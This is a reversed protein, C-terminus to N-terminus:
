SWKYGIGWVTHIMGDTPIGSKRIKDRLNRIHSDVTRIDIYADFEWAINMLEERTFTKSPRSMMAKIILFEKMTLQVSIQQYQLMYTELNLTFNEYTIVEEVPMRRLIAKVRAVLEGEDFPKSIYDDAGIDLGKVIETKDSRATLMIIPVDSFQRIEKCVEWGNMEPMMIDLLVLSIRENKVIEIAKFPSTEKICNFGYPSLFLEVLDLMRKEDDVLLLNKSM